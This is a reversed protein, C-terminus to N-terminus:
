ADSHLGLERAVTIAVLCDDDFGILSETDSEADDQIVFYRVAAQALRQHDQEVPRELTDVLRHCITAIHNVRRMDLYDLERALVEISVLYDSVMRRLELPSVLAERFLRCVITSVRAPLAAMVRDISVDHGAPGPDIADPSM